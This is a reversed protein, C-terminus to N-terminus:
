EIGKHIHCSTQKEVAVAQLKAIQVVLGEVRSRVEAFAM